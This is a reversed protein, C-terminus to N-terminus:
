QLCAKQCEVVGQKFGHEWEWAAKGLVDGKSEYESRRRRAWEEIFGLESVGDRASLFLLADDWGQSYGPAFVAPNPSGGNNQWYQTHSDLSTLKGILVLV